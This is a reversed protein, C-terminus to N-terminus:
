IKCNNNEILKKKFKNENLNIIRSWNTRYLKKNKESKNIYEWILEGKKDFMLLRGYNNEEILLSKNKFIEAAGMTVTRVEFKDFIDKHYYEINDKSFDYIILNNNKITKDFNHALRNNNFVSIKNLDIIDVDHQFEWPFKKYWLIENTAPRYLVIMSLHRFSLFLDGKKYYNGNITVPQIDNLHFPDFTEEKGSFILHSLNNELFIEVLSKKFVIKNDFDVKMIGDDYFFNKNNGINEDLGPNNKSNFTVIATWIGSEDAEISHRTIEDVSSIYKSCIDIKVLPSYLSHFYLDGNDSLYPHIIQYRKQNHDRSLKIIEKSIKSKSNIYNIDPEWTHIVKGSKLDILEVLSKERDGDYRSLLLYFNKGYKFNKNHFILGNKEGFRNERGIDLEDSFIKKLNEPISAISRATESRLVLSGFLITFFIFFVIVLLLIWVEIKKFLLKELNM